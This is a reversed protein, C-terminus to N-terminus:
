GATFANAKQGSKEMLGQKHIGNREEKRRKQRTRKESEKLENRLDSIIKEENRIGHKKLFYRAYMCHNCRKEGGHRSCCEETTLMESGDLHTDTYNMAAIIPNWLSPDENKKYHEIARVTEASIGAKSLLAKITEPTSIIDPLSADTIDNLLGAVYWEDKLGSPALRSMLEAFALNRNLSQMRERNGCISRIYRDMAIESKGYKNIDRFAKILEQAASKNM